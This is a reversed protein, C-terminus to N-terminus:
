LPQFIETDESSTGIDQLYWCSIDVADLLEMCYAERCRQLLDENFRM